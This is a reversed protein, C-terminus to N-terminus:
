EKVKHCKNEEEVKQGKINSYIIPIAIFYIMSITDAYGISLRCTTEFCSIVLFVVVSILM